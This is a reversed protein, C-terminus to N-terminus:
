GERAWVYVCVYKCVDMCAYYYTNPLSQIKNKWKKSNKLLLELEVKVKQPLQTCIAGWIIMRRKSIMRLLKLALVATNAQTNSNIVSVM